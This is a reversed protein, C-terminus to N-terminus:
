QNDPHRVVTLMRKLNSDFPMTALVNGLKKQILLHVPIEADQLLRLFSCETGNGVAEYTLHEMEVRADCNWLVSEQILQIAHESLECNLITNKRTNKIVEDGKDCHFQHVKLVGTTITGTKGCCIEEICGLKEPADLQRVLLNDGYMKMVSFALSVGIALPLGEPVSVMWLVVAFNINRTLTSFLTSAVGSENAARDEDILSLSIIMMVINLLFIVGTSYLAYITFHSTLNKLKM